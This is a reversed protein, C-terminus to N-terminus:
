NEGRPLTMAGVSFPCFPAFSIVTTGADPENGGRVCMVTVTPLACCLVWLWRALGPSRLRGPDLPFNSTASTRVSDRSSRNPTESPIAGAQTGRQRYSRSSVVTGGGASDSLEGKFDPFLLIFVFGFLALVGTYADLPVSHM